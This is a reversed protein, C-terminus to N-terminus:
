ASRYSWGKVSPPHKMGQEELVERVFDPMPYRERKLNSFEKSLITKKKVMRVLKHTKLTFSKWNTPMGIASRLGLQSPLDIM